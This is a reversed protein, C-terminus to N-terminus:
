DLAEPLQHRVEASAGAYALFREEAFQAALDRGEARHVVATTKSADAIRVLVAYLNKARALLDDYRAQIEAATDTAAAM